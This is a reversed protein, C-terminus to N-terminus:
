RRCQDERPGSFTPQDTEKGHKRRRVNVTLIVSFLDALHNGPRALPGVGGALQAFSKGGEVCFKNSKSEQLFVM